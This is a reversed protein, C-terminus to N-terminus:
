TTLHERLAAGFHWVFTIYQSTRANEEKHICKHLLCLAPVATDKPGELEQLVKKRPCFWVPQCEKEPPFIRNNYSMGLAANDTAM